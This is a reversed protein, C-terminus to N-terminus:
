GRLSCDGDMRTASLIRCHSSHSSPWHNTFFASSWIWNNKGSSWIWHLLFMNIHFNIIKTMGSLYPQYPIRFSHRRNYNCCIIAHINRSFTLKAYKGAGYGKIKHTNKTMDIGTDLMGPFSCCQKWIQM